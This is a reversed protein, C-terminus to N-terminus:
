VSGRARAAGINRLEAVSAAATTVVIAGADLGAQRSGDSSENDVVIVDILDRPYDNGVVSSLCRRLRAADNKVPIVFSIVPPMTPQRAYAFARCSGMIGRQRRRVKAETHRLRTKM